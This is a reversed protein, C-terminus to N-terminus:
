AGAEELVPRPSSGSCVMVCFHGAKSVVSDTRTQEGRSVFLFFVITIFFCFMPFIAPSITAAPSSHAAPDAFAVSVNVRFETNLPDAGVLVLGHIVAVNASLPAFLTKNVKVEESLTALSNM